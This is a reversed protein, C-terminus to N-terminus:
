VQSAHCSSGPLCNCWATCWRTSSGSLGSDCGNTWQNLCRKSTYIVPADLAAPRLGPSGPASRARVRCERVHVHRQGRGEHQGRLLPLLRPDLRHDLVVAVAERHLVASWLGPNGLGPNGFGPDRSTADGTSFGINGFGLDRFGARRFGINGFAADRFGAHRFGVNGFGVDRFSTCRFGSVQAGPVAPTGRACADEGVKTM